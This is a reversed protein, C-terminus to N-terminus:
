VALFRRLTAEDHLLEERSARHALRGREM